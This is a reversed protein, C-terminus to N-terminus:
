QRKRLSSEGVDLLRQMGSVKRHQMLLLLFYFLLTWFLNAFPRMAIANKDGRAATFAITRKATNM